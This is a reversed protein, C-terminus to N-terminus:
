VNENQKEEEKGEERGKVGNLLKDKADKIQFDLTELHANVGRLDKEANMRVLAAKASIGKELDFELCDKHGKFINWEKENREVSKNYLSKEEETLERNKEIM